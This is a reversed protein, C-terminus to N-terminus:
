NKNEYACIIEFEAYEIDEEEKKTTTYTTKVNEFYPSNELTTIFKFVDSM